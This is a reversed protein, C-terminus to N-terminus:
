NTDPDAQIDTSRHKAKRLCANCRARLGGRQLKSRPSESDSLGCSLCNKDYTSTNITTLGNFRGPLETVCKIHAPVSNYDGAGIPHKCIKCLDM